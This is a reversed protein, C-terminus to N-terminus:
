SHRKSDTPAPKRSGSSDTSRTGSRSHRQCKCSEKGQPPTSTGGFAEAKLTQLYQVMDLRMKNNSNSFVWPRCAMFVEIVLELEKKTVLIAVKDEETLGTLLRKEIVERPERKITPKDM